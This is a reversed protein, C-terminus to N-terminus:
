IKEKLQMTVIRIIVSDFAAKAGLMHNYKADSRAKNMEAEHWKSEKLCWEKLKNIDM